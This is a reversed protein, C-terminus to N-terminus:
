DVNRKGGGKREFFGLDNKGSWDLMGRDILVRYEVDKVQENKYKYTDEIIEQNKLAFDREMSGPRLM